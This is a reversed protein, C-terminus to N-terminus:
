YFNHFLILIIKGVCVDTAIGAIYLDSVNEDKIIEELCTKSLKQNDFFASYSDVDPNVGQSFPENWESNLITARVGERISWGRRPTFNSTRTYSPDGPRSSVTVLGCYRSRGPHVRSHWWITHRVPGPSLSRVYVFPDFTRVTGRGGWQVTALWAGWTFTTLSPSTIQPTGTWVTATCPSPSPTWCGTSRLLWMKAMRVLPVTPSPSAVLSSTMRSTLLSLRVAHSCSRFCCFLFRWLQHQHYNTGKYDLQRLLVQVGAQEYQRGGVRQLDHLHGGAAPLGTQFM